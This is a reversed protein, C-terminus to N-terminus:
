LSWGYVVYAPSPSTNLLIGISSCLSIYYVQRRLLPPPPPDFITLIKHIAGLCFNQLKAASYVHWLNLTFIMFINCLTSLHSNAIHYQNNHVQIILLFYRHYLIHQFQLFRFRHNIILITARTHIKGLLALIVLVVLTLATIKFTWAM